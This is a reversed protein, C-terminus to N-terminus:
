GEALAEKLKNTKGGVRWSIPLEDIYKKEVEERLSSLIEKGVDERGIVVIKDVPVIEGREIASKMYSKLKSLEEKSPEGLYITYEYPSDSVSTKVVIVNSNIKHYSKECSDEDRYSLFETDGFVINESKYWDDSRCNELEIIKGIM